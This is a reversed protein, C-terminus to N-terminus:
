KSPHGSMPFRNSLRPGTEKGVWTSEPFVQLTNETTHYQMCSYSQLLGNKKFPCPVALLGAFLYCVHKGKQKYEGNFHAFNIVSTGARRRSQEPLLWQQKSLLGTHCLKALM